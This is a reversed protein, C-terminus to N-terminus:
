LSEELFYLTYTSSASSWTLVTVGANEQGSFAKYNQKSFKYSVFQEKTVEFKYTASNLFGYRTRVPYITMVHRTPSGKTLEYYLPTWMKGAPVNIPNVGSGSHAIDRVIEMRVIRGIKQNGDYITNEDHNQNKYETYPKKLVNTIKEKIPEINMIGYVVVAMIIAVLAISLAMKLLISHRHIKPPINITSKWEGSVVQKNDGLMKKKLNSFEETTIAGQDLLTKLKQIEEIIDM